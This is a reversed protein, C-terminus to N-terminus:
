QQKIEVKIEEVKSDKNDNNAKDNNDKNNRDTISLKENKKKKQNCKCNKKKLTTKM